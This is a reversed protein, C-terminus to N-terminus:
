WTRKALKITTLERTRYKMIILLTFQRIVHEYRSVITHSEQMHVLQDNPSQSPHKIQSSIQWFFFYDKGSFISVVVILRVNQRFEVVLDLFFQRKCSSAM